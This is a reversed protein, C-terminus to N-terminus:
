RSGLPFSARKEWRGASDDMLWIRDAFANVPLHESAADSFNRQVSALLGSDDSYAVTLHPTITDFRGGYPPSDPFEQVIQEILRVFAAVPKPALYIVKPFRAIHNLTFSFPSMEAFRKSLRSLVDATPRVGPIFPHNITIHAPVGWGAAPDYKARFPGVLPEAEPVIVVLAAEIRRSSGVHSMKWGEEM